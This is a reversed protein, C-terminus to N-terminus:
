FSQNKKKKLISDLKKDREELKVRRNYEEAFLVWEKKSDRRFKEDTNIRNIIFLFDKKPTRPNVFIGFDLALSLIEKQTM